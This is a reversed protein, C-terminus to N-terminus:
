RFVGVLLLALITYSVLCAALVYKAWRDHQGPTRGEFDEDM